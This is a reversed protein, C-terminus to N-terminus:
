ATAEQRRPTSPSSAPMTYRQEIAAKIRQRSEAPSLNPAQEVQEAASALNDDKIKDRFWSSYDGRRLHYEWTADDVGEAIQVFLLLNQVRLHLKRQPGEFYFLDDPPLEGEVYKRSHRRRETRGSTVRMRFPPEM